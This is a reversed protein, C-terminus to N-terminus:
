SKKLRVAYWQWVGQAGCDLDCATKFLRDVQEAITGLHQLDRPLDAPALASILDTLKAKLEEATVFTEEMEPSILVFLEEYYMLSDPM